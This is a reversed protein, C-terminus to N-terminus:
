VHARGIQDTLTLGIEVGELGALSVIEGASATGIETRDLAEFAYLKTVKSLSAKTAPDMQLLAVQDGVHVTGREIRGIALRGLYPSYDITSVLMQFPGDADSPPAPVAAVITEFLPTLDTPPVDMDLTSTGDRGSAYVFPADLQEETAELEILLDLVESHVRIPDAGPRDIKNVVVIPKRGLALAKSRFLM